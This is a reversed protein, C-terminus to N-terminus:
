AIAGGAAVTCMNNRNSREPHTRSASTRQLRRSIDSRLVDLEEELLTCLGAVEFNWPVFVCGREARYDEENACLVLPIRAGPDARMATLLNRLLWFEANCSKGFSDDVDESLGQGSLMGAGQPPTSLHMGCCRRMGEQRQSATLGPEMFVLDPHYGDEIMRVRMRSTDVGVGAVSESEAGEKPSCAEGAGTNGGEEHVEKESYATGFKERVRAEVHASVAELRKRRAQKTKTKLAKRLYQARYKRRFSEMAAWRRTAAPDDYLSDKFMTEHTQSHWLDSFKEFRQQQPSGTSFDCGPNSAATTSGDRSVGPHESRGSEHEHTSTHASSQNNGPRRFLGLAPHAFQPWTAPDINGRFRAALSSTELATEAQHLLDSVLRDRLAFPPRGPPLSPLELSLPAARNPLVEGTSRRTVPRFFALTTQVFPARLSNEGDAGGRGGANNSESLGGGANTASSCDIRDIWQNLVMLSQQNIRKAHAPLTQSLDPHVKKVFFHLSKRTSTAM